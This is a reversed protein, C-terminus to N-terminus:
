RCNTTYKTEYYRTKRAIAYIGLDAGLPLVKVGVATRVPLPHNFYKMYEKNLSPLESIDEIYRYDFLIMEVKQM